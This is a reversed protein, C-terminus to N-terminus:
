YGKKSAKVVVLCLFAFSLLFALDSKVTEDKLFQTLVELYDM